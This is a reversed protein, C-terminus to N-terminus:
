KTETTPSLRYTMVQWMEGGVENASYVTSFMENPSFKHIVVESKNQFDKDLIVHQWEKLNHENNM